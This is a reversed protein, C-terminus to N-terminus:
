PRHTTPFSLVFIGIALAASSRATKGLAPAAFSKTIFSIHTM